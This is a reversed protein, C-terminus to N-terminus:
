ATFRIKILNRGLKNTLIHIESKLLQIKKEANQIKKGIKAHVYVEEYVFLNSHLQCISSNQLNLLHNRDSFSINTIQRATITRRSNNIM